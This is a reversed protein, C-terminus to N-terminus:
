VIRRPMGCGEGESTDRIALRSEEVLGLEQSLLQVLVSPWLEAFRGGNTFIKTGLGPDMDGEVLWEAISGCCRSSSLM